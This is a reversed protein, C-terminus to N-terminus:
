VNFLFHIIDGDQVTYEKGEVRMKGHAKIEHESKFEELDEVRYVEVRIFGEQFDTHIVGAAEPATAGVWSCLRSFWSRVLSAWTCCITSASPAQLSAM